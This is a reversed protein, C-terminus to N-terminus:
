AARRAVRRQRHLVEGVSINLPDTFITIVFIVGTIPLLWRVLVVWAMRWSGATRGTSRAAFETGIALTGLTRGGVCLAGVVAPVVVALALATLGSVTDSLHLQALGVLSAIYAAAVVLQDIVWALLKPWFGITENTGSPPTAAATM